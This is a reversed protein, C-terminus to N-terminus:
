LFAPKENHSINIGYYHRLNAWIRRYGWYPHESKLRAIHRIKRLYGCGCCREAGGLSHCIKRQKVIKKNENQEREKPTRLKAKKELSEVIKKKGFSPATYQSLIWPSVAKVKDKSRISSSIAM